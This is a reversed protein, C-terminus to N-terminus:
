RNKRKLWIALGQSNLSMDLKLLKLLETESLQTEIEKARNLTYETLEKEIMKEPEDCDKNRMAIEAYLDVQDLMQQTYRHPERLEGFHTLFISTAKLEHLRHISQKLAEPDFQVPTTTPFVLTGKAGRLEKYSVGFTDGSFISQSSKDYVCFHHNAHGPTFLIELTRDELTFHADDEPEIIRAEDVPIIDGYTRSFEEEGYVAIAGAKLREPNALHFAGHPHIIATANPLAQMLGGVGGAHDLHVHTPIVYRVNERPINLEALVALLIPVTNNTGTEIIAASNGQQLIYCAAMGERLMGTDVVTIGHDLTTYIPKM